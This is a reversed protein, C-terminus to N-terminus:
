ARTMLKLGGGATVVYQGAGSGDSVLVVDGPAFMNSLGDALVLAFFEDPTPPVPGRYHWHTFGQAYALVSLNRTTFPPALAASPTLM